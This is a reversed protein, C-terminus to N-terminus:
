PDQFELKLIRAVRILDGPSVVDQYRDLMFLTDDDFVLSDPVAVGEPVVRTIYERLLANGPTVMSGVSAFVSTLSVFRSGNPFIEGGPTQQIGINPFGASGSNLRAFMQTNIRRALETGLRAAASDVLTQQMAVLSLISSGTIEEEKGTLQDQQLGMRAFIPGFLSFHESRYEGNVIVRRDGFISTQVESYDGTNIAGFDVLQNPSELITLIASEALTGTLSVLGARLNANPIKSVAVSDFVEMAGAVLSDAATHDALRKSLFTRLAERVGDEDPEPGIAPELSAGEPYSGLTFLNVDTPQFPRLALTAWVPELETSLTLKGSPTRYSRALAFTWPDLALVSGDSVLGEVTIDMTGQVSQTELPHFVQQGTLLDIVRAFVATGSMGGSGSLDRIETPLSIRIRTNKGPIGEGDIQEIASVSVVETLDVCVRKGFDVSFLVFDSFSIAGDGDLDWVPLFDGDYLPNFVFALELFDEFDAVCPTQANVGYAFRREEAEGTGPNLLLASLFLLLVKM